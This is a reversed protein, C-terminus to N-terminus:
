IGITRIEFPQEQQILENLTQIKKMIGERWAERSVSEGDLSYDPGATGAANAAADNALATIYDSRIAQLTTVSM